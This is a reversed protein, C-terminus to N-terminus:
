RLGMTREIEDGEEDEAKRCLECQNEGSECEDRTQGNECREVDSSGFTPNDPNSGASRAKNYSAEAFAFLDPGTPIPQNM